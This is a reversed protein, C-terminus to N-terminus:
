KRLQAWLLNRFSGLVEPLPVLNVEVSDLTGGVKASAAGAQFTAMLRDLSRIGPLSIGKLIRTSAVAFGDVPSEAGLNVNKIQGAGRIEVGRNFYTFSPIRVSPGELRVTVEGTGTPQQKGFKFKLSNYLVGIVPSNVLDSQTLSIQAEGGFSDLKSSALLTANGSLNGIYDAANPDIAHVLQKLNLNNFDAVLSGYYADAHRSARARTELQGDLMQFDAQDILLRANGLHGRIRCIDVTAPGFRGNEIDADIAFRMPEPPRAEEPVQEVILNGSVTGQFREFQPV